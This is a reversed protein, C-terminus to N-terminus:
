KWPYGKQAVEAELKDVDDWLTGLVSVTRGPTNNKEDQKKAFDM